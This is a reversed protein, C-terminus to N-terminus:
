LPTSSLVITMRLLWLALPPATKCAPGRDFAGHRPLKRFVGNSPLIRTGAMIRQGPWTGAPTTVFSISAATSQSGV